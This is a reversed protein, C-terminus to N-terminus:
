WHSTVHKDDQCTSPQFLFPKELEFGAQSFLLVIDSLVIDGEFNLGRCQLNGASV